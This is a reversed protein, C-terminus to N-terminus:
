GGPSDRRKVRKAKLEAVKQRRALFEVERQLKRYNRFREPALAGLELAARVACGPEDRHRCDRFRCGAALEEIDEFARDVDTEEGWLQLERMGPTDILLGGAPIPILERRTTVHRGKGVAISVAGIRQRETGLLRNIITSKGVGSSGIFAITETARLYQHLADLGKEELASVSHLPIRDAVARLEATRAAFDPCLDTKNLVIVPAAGSRLMAAVYREIRRPNFEQDLGAVLLVTDVNAALVQESTRTGAVKRSIASRRPLVAVIQARDPGLAKVAVWDGVAPFRSEDTAEYRFRGPVEAAMEGLEGWVLYREREERVVRAPSLGDTGLAAFSQEFFPSWGLGALGTVVCGTDDSANM